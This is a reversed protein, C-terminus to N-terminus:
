NGCPVGGPGRAVGEGASRFVHVGGPAGSESGGGSVVYRDGYLDVAVAGHRVFGGSPPHTGGPCGPDPNPDLTSTTCDGTLSLAGSFLHTEEESAHAFAPQLLLVAICAALLLLRVAISERNVDMKSDKRDQTM